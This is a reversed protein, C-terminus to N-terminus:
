YKFEKKGKNEKGLSEIKKERIKLETLFNTEKQKLEDSLSMKLTNLQQYDNKNKKSEGELLNIYNDKEKKVKMWNLKEDELSQLQIKLKKV